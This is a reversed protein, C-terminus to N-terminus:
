DDLNNNKNTRFKEIVLVKELIEIIKDMGYISALHRIKDCRDCLRRTIVINERCCPCTLNFM